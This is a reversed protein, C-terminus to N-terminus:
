ASAARRFNVFGDSLDSGVKWEVREINAQYRSEESAWDKGIVVPFAQVGAQRLTEARNVARYVDYGNVQTSIEVVAIREGKWWIIDALFPDYEVDLKLLDQDVLPKLWQGLQQRIEFENPSGGQGGNFLVFGQRVMEREYQVEEHFAEDSRILKLIEERSM